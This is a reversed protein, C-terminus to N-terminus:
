PGVGCNLMQAGSGGGLVYALVQAPTEPQLSSLLNQATTEGNANLSYYATGSVCPQSPVAKITYTLVKGNVEPGPLYIFRYAGNRGSALSSDLLGAAASSALTHPPPPGLEALSTSYGYGYTSAYTAEAVQIDRLTVEAAAQSAVM